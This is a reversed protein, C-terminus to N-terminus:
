KFFFLYFYFFTAFHVIGPRVLLLLLQVVGRRGLAAVAVVGVHLSGLHRVAAPLSPFERNKREIKLQSGARHVRFECSLTM